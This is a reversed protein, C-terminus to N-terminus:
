LIRRGVEEAQDAVAASCVRARVVAGRGPSTKSRSPSRPAWRSRLWPPTPTRDNKRKKRATLRQSPEVARPEATTLPDAPGEEVAGVESATAVAAWSMGGTSAPPVPKEAVDPPTTGPRWRELGTAEDRELTLLLDDFVDCMLDVALAGFDTVAGGVVAANEHLRVVGRLTLHPAGRASASTAKSRFFSRTNTGGRTGLAGRGFM